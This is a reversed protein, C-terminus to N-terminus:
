LCHLTLGLLLVVRLGRLSDIIQLRGAIEMM